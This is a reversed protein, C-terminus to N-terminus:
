HHGIGEERALLTVVVREGGGPHVTISTGPKPGMDASVTVALVPLLLLVMMFLSIVRKKM